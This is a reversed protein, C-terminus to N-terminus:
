ASEQVPETLACRDDRLVQRAPRDIFLLVAAAIAAIAAVLLFFGTNDLQSWLSGVAGAFFNGAFSASFWLAITTAALTSPALQGFLALGTPLILMEGTTYVIFFAVLWVWHASAGTVSAVQAIAALLVYSLAVVFAGMAMRRLPAVAHDPRSGRRWIFLLVPTLIFVLLPNLAQFWTSPITYGEGLGRDVSSDAWLAVTNGTQEYAGRFVVVIAVVALLLGIRQGFSQREASTAVDNSRANLVSAPLYRGGVVYIVLGICMGVGAAGFGWHWGLLEGLTGCILPALVGGLNIGVYYVNYATVRRPDDPQYL